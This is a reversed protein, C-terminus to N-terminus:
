VIHKFSYKRKLVSWERYESLVENMLIFIWLYRM